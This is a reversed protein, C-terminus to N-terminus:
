WISGLVKPKIEKRVPIYFCFLQFYDRILSVLINVVLESLRSKSHDTM